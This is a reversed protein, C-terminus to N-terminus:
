ANEPHIVARVNGSFARSGQDRIVYGAEQDAFRRPGPGFQPTFAPDTL